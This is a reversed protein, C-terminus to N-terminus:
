GAYHKVLFEKAEAENKIIGDVTAILLDDLM